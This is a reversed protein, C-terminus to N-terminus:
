RVTDNSGGEEVTGSPRDTESRHVHPSQGPQPRKGDQRATVNISTTWSRFSSVHPLANAQERPDHDSNELESNRKAHERLLAHGVLTRGPSGTPGSVSFSEGHRRPM